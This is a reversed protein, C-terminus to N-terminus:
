AEHFQFKLHMKLNRLGAKMRKLQELLENYLNTEFKSEQDVKGDILCYAM